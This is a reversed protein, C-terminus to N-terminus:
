VEDEDPVMPCLAMEQQSTRWRRPKPAIGGIRRDRDIGLMTEPDVSTSIFRLFSRAALSPM